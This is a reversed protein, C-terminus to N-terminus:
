ADDMLVSQVNRRYSNNNLAKSLGTTVVQDPPMSQVKNVFADVGGTFRDMAEGIGTFFFVSRNREVEHPDRSFPAERTHHGLFHFGLLIAGAIIGGIVPITAAGLGLLGAGGGLGLAAGLGTAPAAVATAGLAGGAGAIGALPGVASTGIAVGPIASGVGGGLLGGLLGGGGALNLLGGGSSGSSQTGFVRGIGIRNAIGGIIGSSASTKGAGAAGGFVLNTAFDQFLTRTITSLLAKGLNALDGFAGKGKLFFDDWVRGAGERFSDMFEKSRKQAEEYQKIIRKAIVDTGKEAEKVAPDNAGSNKIRFDNLQQNWYDQNKIFENGAEELVKKLEQFDKIAVKAQEDAAKLGAKVEDTMAGGAVTANRYQSLAKAFYDAYEQQEKLRDRFIEASKSAQEFWKATDEYDALPLKEGQIKKIELDLKAAEEQAKKLQGALEADSDGGRIYNLVAGTPNTVRNIDGLEGRRRQIDAIERNKADLEAQRGSLQENAARSGTIMGARAQLEVQADAIARLSDIYKQNLEIQGEFAKRAKEDWGTLKESIKEFAEPVKLLVDILGVVAITSFAAKMAPGILESKSLFNSVARPMEVGVLESVLRISESAERSSGRLNEMAKKGNAGVGDLSGQLQKGDAQLGKFEDRAKKTIASFADRARILIEPSNPM